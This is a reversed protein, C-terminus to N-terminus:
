GADGDALEVCFATEAGATIASDILYGIPWFEAAGVFVGNDLVRAFAAFRASKKKLM